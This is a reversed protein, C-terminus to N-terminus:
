EKVHVIDFHEEKRFQPAYFVFTPGNNPNEIGKEQEPEMTRVVASMDKAIGALDKANAAELKDDTIKGLAAMLKNRARKAIREKAQNIVPQNPRRDYSSTSTAGVDYASVSSPSVGFQQALEVGAQRGNIASEEGIINRLSNPVEVSGKGRGRNVDMIEGTIPVSSNSEERSPPPTVIKSKELDFEKDTVIGMPM